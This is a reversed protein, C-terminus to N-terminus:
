VVTSVIVSGVTVTVPDVDVMVTVWPGPKLFRCCGFTDATGNLAREDAQSTEGRLWVTIELADLM